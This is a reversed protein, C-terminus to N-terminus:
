SQKMSRTWEEAVQLLFLWNYHGYGVFFERLVPFIYIEVDCLTYMCILSKKKLPNNLAAM